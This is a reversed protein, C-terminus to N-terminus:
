AYVSLGSQSGYVSQLISYSADSVASSAGASANLSSLLEEISQVSQSAAAAENALSPVASSNLDGQVTAFASQASSVNGSNLASGLSALDKLLQSNGAQSAAASNQLLRQVTQFASQAGTLDGAALSNQLTRLSSQVQNSNSSELVYQSLGSASIASIPSITM